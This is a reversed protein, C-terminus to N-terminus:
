IISLSIESEKQWKMAIIQGVTELSFFRQPKNTWCFDMQIFDLDM